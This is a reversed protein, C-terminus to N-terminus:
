YIHDAIASEVSSFNINRLNNTNKQRKAKMFQYQKSPMFLYFVKKKM